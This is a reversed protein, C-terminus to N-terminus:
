ARLRARNCRHVRASVLLQQVLQLAMARAQALRQEPVLVLALAQVTVLGRVLLLVLRRV